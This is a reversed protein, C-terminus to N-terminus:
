DLAFDLEFHITFIELLKLAQNWGGCCEPSLAITIVDIKNTHKKLTNIFHIITSEDVLRIPTNTNDEKIVFYDLDINIIWHCNKSEEELLYSPINVFGSMKYEELQDKMDKYMTGLGHTFFHYTGIQDKYLNHFLPFYNDWRMIECMEMFNPEQYKLSLYEEINLSKLDPPLASMWYDLQSCLTDYHADIHLVNYCTEKKIGEDLVM